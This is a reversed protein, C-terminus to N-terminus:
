CRRPVAWRLIPSRDLVRTPVLLDKAALFPHQLALSSRHRILLRLLLLVLSLQTRLPPMHNDLLRLHTPHKLIRHWQRIPLSIACLHPPALFLTPLPASLSRNTRFTAQTFTRHSSM